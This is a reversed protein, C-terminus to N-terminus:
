LLIVESPNFFISNVASANGLQLHFVSTVPTQTINGNTGLFVPQNIDWNWDNNSIFGYTLFKITQGQTSSQTTLVFSGPADNINASSAYQGTEINLVRFPQLNIQTVIPPSYIFEVSQEIQAIQADIYAILSPPYDAVPNSGFQLIDLNIAFAGVPVMFKFHNRDPKFFIYFSYTEGSENCWLFLPSGDASKIFGNSDTKYRILQEPYNINNAYSGNEFHIYGWANVWPTDNIRFIQGVIERKM